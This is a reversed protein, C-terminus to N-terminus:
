IESRKPQESDQEDASQERQPTPELGGTIASAALNTPLMQHLALGAKGLNGVSRMGESVVGSMQEGYKHQVVDVTASHASQALITVSAEAGEWLNKMAKGASSALVRLGSPKPSKDSGTLKSVGSSIAKGVTESASVAKDSVTKSCTFLFSTASKLGSSSSRVLGPVKKEEEYPSLRAKLAEGGQKLGNGVKSSRSVMGDKLAGTSTELWGALRESYSPQEPKVPVPNQVEFQTYELLLMEFTVILEQETGRQLVFGVYGEFDTMLYLCAGVKCFPLQRSLTCRYDGVILGPLSIDAYLVFQLDGSTRLGQSDSRIDFVQVQPLTLLIEMLISPQESADQTSM